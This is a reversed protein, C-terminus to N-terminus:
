AAIRFRNRGASKAAYLAADARKLIERTNWDAGGVAVGISTTVCVEVGDVAVPTRVAALIKDAIAVADREDRLSELFIVFEDGGLRAVTDAERVCGRLHAAFGKLLADGAAHGLGDNIGKFKDIDLYLVAVRGGSRRTRAMAHALRDELLTRNGVGTLADCRAEQQLNQEIKKRETIDLNTGIMRLARAGAEDRETVRGRSLIWRWEGSGTRVRHEVAYHPRLGKMTEVLATRVMELDEPHVSAMLEKVTTRTEGRPHGLLAAWTESLYVSGSRLDVDWLAASSGELAMEVRQHASRVERELLQARRLKEGLVYALAGLFAIGALWAISGHWDDFFASFREPNSLAHAYSLALVPLGGLVGRLGFIAAAAILGLGPWGIPAYPRLGALLLAEVIAVGTLSLAAGGLAGRM